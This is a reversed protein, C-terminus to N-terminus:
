MTASIHGAMIDPDGAIVTPHSESRRAAGRPLRPPGSRGRRRCSRDPRPAPAHRAGVRGCNRDYPDAWGRATRRFIKQLLSTGHTYRGDDVVADLVVRSHQFSCRRELGLPMVHPQEAEGGLLGFVECQGIANGDVQLMLVQRAGLRADRALTQGSTTLAGDP